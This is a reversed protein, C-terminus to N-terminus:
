EVHAISKSSLSVEGTLASCECYLDCRMEQALREAEQPYVISRGVLPQEGEELGANPLSRVKGDYDDKQRFDRALGLLIVPLVGSADFNKDVLPKWHVKLNALSQPSNISYCLIVLAPELLTYNTPSSTDYFDLRYPRNYLRVNFAFPQDLDRLVPLAKTRTSIANPGLM